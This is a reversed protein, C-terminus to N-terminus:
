LARRNVGAPKEKSPAGALSREVQTRYHNRHSGYEGISNSFGIFNNGLEAPDYGLWRLFPLAVTETQAFAIFKSGCERLAAEAERLRKEEEASLHTSRDKTPDDEDLAVQKSRAQVNACRTLVQVSEKKLDFFGRLPKQVFELTLWAVFGGCAGSVFSIIVTTM